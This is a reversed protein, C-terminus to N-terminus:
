TTSPACAQFAEGTRQSAAVAREHRPDGGRPSSPMDRRFLALARVESFLGRPLFLISLFLVMGFVLARLNGIERLAEPLLVM